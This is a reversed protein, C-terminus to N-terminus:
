LSQGFLAKGGYVVKPGLHEEIRMLRNYKTVMEGRIPAGIKIMEAGVAVALDAVMPDDTEGSRCSAFVTYHHARAIEATKFAESITGAQNIKFLVANAAGQKAGQELRHANTAFLDDGVVLCDLERTMAAFGDFDNEELGDEIFVLPYKQTLRKYYSILEESSYAGSGLQYTANAGDYFLDAAVDIGFGIRGDYGTEDIVEVLLDFVAETSTLPPALATIQAILGFQEMLKAHLSHFIEVAAAVAEHTTDFGYPVILYDEFDLANGATKSGSIMNACIVPLEFRNGDSLYQFPEIGLVASATRAVSLSVATIANGGLNSKNSTGDLELLVEDIGKQDTIDHGILKPAIISEINRVAKLVGKGMLRRGGDRLEVAEHSSVSVGSPCAAIGRFGNETITEVQVAPIGRGNIIERAKVTKITANLM